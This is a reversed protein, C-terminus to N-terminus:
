AMAAKKEEELQKLEILRETWARDRAVAAMKRETREAEKRKVAASYQARRKKKEAMIFDKRQKIRKKEKRGQVSGKNPQSTPIPEEPNCKVWYYPGKPRLSARKRRNAFGPRRKPFRTNMLGGFLTAGMAPAQSATAAASFPRFGIPDLLWLRAPPPPLPHPTHRLLAAAPSSLPPLARRLARLLAM